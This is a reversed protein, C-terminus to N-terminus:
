LQEFHHEAVVCRFTLLEITELHAMFLKLSINGSALINGSATPHPGKNPLFLVENQLRNFKNNKKREQKWLEYYSAAVFPLLLTEKTFFYCLYVRLPTKLVGLFM